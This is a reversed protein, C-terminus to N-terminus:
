SVHLDHVQKCIKSVVEYDKQGAKRIVAEMKYGGKSANDWIGIDELMYIEKDM